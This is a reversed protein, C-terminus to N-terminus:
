KIRDKTVKVEVNLCAIKKRIKGDNSSLTSKVIWVYGDISLMKLVTMDMSCSSITHNKAKAPCKPRPTVKDLVSLYFAKKVSILKCLGPIKLTPYKECSKMDLTCRNGEIVLDIDGLIDENVVVTGGDFTFKDYSTEPYTFYIM